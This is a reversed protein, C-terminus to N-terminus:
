EPVVGRGLCERGPAGLTDLPNHRFDLELSLGL